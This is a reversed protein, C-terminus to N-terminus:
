EHKLSRRLYRSLSKAIKMGTMNMTEVIQSLEAGTEPLVIDPDIENLPVALFPRECIHPDPLDIQEEHIVRNGYLLIDLDIPRSAYKDELRRRGLGSEIERLRRKLGIPEIDTEIAWVGNVYDAQKRGRLPKTKYFTSTEIIEAVQSIEAFAKKVNPGPNVNSGVGIYAIM